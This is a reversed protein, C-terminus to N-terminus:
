QQVFSKMHFLYELLDTILSYTFQLYVLYAYAGM